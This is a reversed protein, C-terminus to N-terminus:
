CVHRPHAHMCRRYPLEFVTHGPGGPPRHEPNLDGLRLKGPRCFGMDDILIILINPRQDASKSGPQGSEQEVESSCATGLLVLLACATLLPFLRTLVM